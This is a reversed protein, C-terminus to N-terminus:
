KFIWRLWGWFSRPKHPTLLGWVPSFPDRHALDRAMALTEAPYRRAWDELNVEAKTMAAERADM